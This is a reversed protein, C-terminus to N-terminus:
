KERVREALYYPGVIRVKGVAVKVYRLADKRTSYVGVAMGNDNVAVWVLRPPRKM